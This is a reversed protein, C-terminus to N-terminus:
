TRSSRVKFNPLSVMAYNNPLLLVKWPERPKKNEVSRPIIEQAHKIIYESTSTESNDYM